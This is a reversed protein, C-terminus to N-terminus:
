ALLCALVPLPARFVGDGRLNQFALMSGNCLFQLRAYPRMYQCQTSLERKGWIKNRAVHRAIVHSMSPLLIDDLTALRNYTLAM